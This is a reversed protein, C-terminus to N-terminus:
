VTCERRIFWFWGAHRSVHVVKDNTEGKGWIRQGRDRKTYIAECMLFSCVTLLRYRIAFSPAPAPSGTWPHTVAIFSMARCCCPGSCKRPWCALCLAWSCSWHFSKLLTKFEGKFNVIKDQPWIWSVDILPLIGSNSPPLKPPGDGTIVWLHRRQLTKFVGTIVTTIVAAVMRHPGAIPWCGM